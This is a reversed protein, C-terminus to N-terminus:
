YKTISLHDAFQTMLVLPYRENAEQFENIESECVNFRGMHWRIACAEETSLHIFKSAMYMSSVGHGLIFSPTKRKYSPVKEWIGTEDNKVNRMYPEYLGIKCWDHVLACVAMSTIDCKAFKPLAWLDIINNYVRLCHDVLGCPYSDHYISSGPATFFDTSELWNLCAEIRLWTTDPDHTKTAARTLLVGALLSEYMYRKDDITVESNEHHVHNGLLYEPRNKWRTWDSFVAHAESDPIPNFESDLATESGLYFYYHIKKTAKDTVEIKTPSVPKFFYTFSDFPNALITERIKNM